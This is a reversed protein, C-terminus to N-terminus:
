LEWVWRGVGDGNGHGISNGCREGREGRGRRM